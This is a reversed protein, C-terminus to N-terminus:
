GYDIILCSADNSVEDKADMELEVEAGADLLIKM